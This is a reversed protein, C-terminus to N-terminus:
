RWSGKLQAAWGGPAGAQGSRVSIGESGAGLVTLAQQMRVTIAEWLCRDTIHTFFSPLIM